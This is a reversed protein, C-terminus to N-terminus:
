KAPLSNASAHVASVAFSKSAPLEVEEKKLKPTTSCRKMKTSYTQKKTSFSMNTSNGESTTSCDNFFTSGMMLKTSYTQEETSFVYM